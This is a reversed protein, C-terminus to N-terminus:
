YIDISDIDFVEFRTNIPKIILNPSDPYFFFLTDKSIVMISDKLLRNHYMEVREMYTEGEIWEVGDINYGDIGSYASQTLPSVSTSLASVVKKL